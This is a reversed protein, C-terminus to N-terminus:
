RNPHWPQVTIEQMCTQCEVIYAHVYVNSLGRSRVTILVATCHAYYLALVAIAHVYLGVYVYARVRLSVCLHKWSFMHMCAAFM